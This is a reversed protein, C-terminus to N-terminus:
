LLHDILVSNKLTIKYIGSKKRKLVTNNEHSKCVKKWQWFLTTVFDKDCHTQLYKIMDCDLKSTQQEYTETRTQLLKAESKFKEVALDKRIKADKPSDLSDLSRPHIMLSSDQSCRCRQHNM